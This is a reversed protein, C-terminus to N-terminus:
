QPQAAAAAPAAVPAATSAAQQPASGDAGPAVGATAAIEDQQRANIDDHEAQQRKNMDDREKKHRDHADQRERAHRAMMGTADEGAPGDAKGEGEKKPAASKKSGKPEDKYLAEQRAANRDAPNERAM